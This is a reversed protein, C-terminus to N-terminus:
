CRVRHGCDCVRYRVTQWCGARVLVQRYIPRGCRDYGTFCTQYLPPIWERECVTRWCHHHVPRHHHGLGVHFRPLDIRVQPGCLDVRFKVDAPAAQAPAAFALAALAAAILKM